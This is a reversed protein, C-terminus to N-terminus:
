NPPILREIRRADDLLSLVERADEYGGDVADRAILWYGERILARVSSALREPEPEDRDPGGNLLMFLVQHIMLRVHRPRDDLLAASLVEAVPEAVSYVSNQSFAAGEIREFADGSDEPSTSAFLSRLVSGMSEASGGMARYRTWDTRSILRDAITSM